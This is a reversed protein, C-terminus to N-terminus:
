LIIRYVDDENRIMDNILFGGPEDIEEILSFVQCDKPLGSFILTFEYKGVYKPRTWNPYLSIGSWFILPIKAGDETKLYTTEWIRLADYPYCKFAFHVVVQKEKNWEVNTKQLVNTKVHKLTKMSIESM